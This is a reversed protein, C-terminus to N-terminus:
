KSKVDNLVEVLAKDAIVQLELEKTIQIQKIRQHEQVEAVLIRVMEPLNKEHEVYRESKFDGEQVTLGIGDRYTVKVHM